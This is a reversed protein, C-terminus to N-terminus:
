MSDIRQCLRKAPANRPPPFRLRPTTKGHPHLHLADSPSRSGVRPPQLRLPHLRRWASALNAWTTERLRSGLPQFILTQRGRLVNPSAPPLIPRCAGTAPSEAQATSTWPLRSRWDLGFRQDVASHHHPPEIVQSRFFVSQLRAESPAREQLSPERGAQMARSHTRVNSRWRLRWSGVTPTQEDAVPLTLSSASQDPRERPQRPFM